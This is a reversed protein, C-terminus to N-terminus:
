ESTSSSPPRYGTGGRPTGSRRAIVLARRAEKRVSAAMSARRRTNELWQAGLKANAAAAMKDALAWLKEPRKRNDLLRREHPRPAEATRVQQSDDRVLSWPLPFM